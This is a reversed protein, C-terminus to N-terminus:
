AIQTAQRKGGSALGGLITGFAGIKGSARIDKAAARDSRALNEQNIADSEGQREIENIDLYQNKYSREQIDFFSGNPVIGAGAAIAYQEAIADEHQDEKADARAAADRRSAIANIERVQAQREKAAAQSNAQAIGGIASVASGAIGAAIGLMPACM